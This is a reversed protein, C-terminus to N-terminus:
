SEQEFTDEYRDRPRIMYKYGCSYQKQKVIGCFLQAVTHSLGLCCNDKSTCVRNYVKQHQM